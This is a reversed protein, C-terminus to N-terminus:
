ILTVVRLDKAEVPVKKSNLDTTAFVIEIQYTDFGGGIVAGYHKEKFVVPSDSVNDEIIELSTLPANEISSSTDSSKLARVSVSEVTGQSNKDLFM